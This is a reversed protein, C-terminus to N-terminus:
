CSVQVHKSQVGSATGWGREPRMQRDGARRPRVWQELLVSYDYVRAGSTKCKGISGETWFVRGKPIKHSKIGRRIDTVQEFTGM